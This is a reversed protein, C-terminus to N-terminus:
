QNEFPSDHERYTGRLSKYLLVPGKFLGFLAVAIAFLLLKPQFVGNVLFAIAFGLGTVGFLLIMTGFLYGDRNEKRFEGGNAEFLETLLQNSQEETMGRYSAMLSELIIERRTGELVATITYDINDEQLGLALYKVKVQEIKKM